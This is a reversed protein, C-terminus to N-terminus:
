CNDDKVCYKIGYYKKYSQACDLLAFDHHIVQEEKPPLKMYDGYIRKLLEDNKGPISVLLDEFLVQKNPYFIDESFKMKGTHGYAYTLYGTEKQKKIKNYFYDALTKKGQDPIMLLIYECIVRIIFGHNNPAKGYAFLRALLSNLYFISYKLKNNPCNYLPYIDVFVGHNIDRDVENKEILTTSSDRVRSILLGYEPDTRRSQIFLNDSFSSQYNELKELDDIRMFLDIDDDWPIFGKHRAAGIASGFALWYSLGHNRCVIDIERLINLQIIKLEDVNMNDM